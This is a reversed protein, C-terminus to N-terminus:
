RKHIGKKGKAKKRRMRRKLKSLQNKKEVGKAGNSLHMRCMTTQKNTEM